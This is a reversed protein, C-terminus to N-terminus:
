ILMSIAASIPHTPQTLLTQQLQNKQQAKAKHATVGQVHEKLHCKKEQSIRSVYSALCEMVKVAYVCKDRSNNWEKALRKGCQQVMETAKTIKQPEDKYLETVGKMFSDTSYKGGEVDDESTWFGNKDTIGSEKSTHVKWLTWSEKLGVEKRNEKKRREPPVWISAQKPLGYERTANHEQKCAVINKITNTLITPTNNEGAYDGDREVAKRWRPVFAQIGALYFDLGVHRLWEEAAHVLFDDDEFRTGRRSELVFAPVSLLILCYVSFRMEIATVGGSGLVDFTITFERATATWHLFISSPVNDAECYGPFYFVPRKM